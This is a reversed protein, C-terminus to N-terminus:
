SKFIVLPSYTLTALCQGFYVSSHALLNLMCLESNFHLLDPDPGRFFQNRIFGSYSDSAVTELKRAMANICKYRSYKSSSFAKSSFDLLMLFGMVTEQLVNKRALAAFKTSGGGGGALLKNM